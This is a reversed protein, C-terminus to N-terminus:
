SASPPARSRAHMWSFAFKPAQVFLSPPLRVEHDTAFGPSSGTLFKATQLCCYTCAGHHDHSSAPENQQGDLSGQQIQSLSVHHMGESTCIEVVDAGAREAALVKSVTPAFVVMVMAFLAVLSIRRIQALSIM